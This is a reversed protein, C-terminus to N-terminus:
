LWNGSPRGRLTASKVDMLEPRERSQSALRRHLLPAPTPHSSPEEKEKAAPVPAPATAPTTPANRIRDRGRASGTSKSSGFSDRGTSSTSAIDAADATAAANDEDHERLTDMSRMSGGGSSQGRTHSIVVHQSSTRSLQAAHSNPYRRLENTCLHALEPLDLYVAEDRLALLSELRAPTAAHLQVAHPLTAVHDATTPPSRLYTLIHDYRSTRNLALDKHRIIHLPCSM